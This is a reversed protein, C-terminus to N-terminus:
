KRKLLVGNAAKGRGVCPDALLGLTVSSCDASYTLSLRGEDEKHCVYGSTATTATGHFALAPGDMHWAIKTEARVSKTSGTGDAALSIEIPTGSFAYSSPPYVGSWDGVISCAGAMAPAPASPHSAAIAATAPAAAAAPAATAPAASSVTGSAPAGKCAALAALLCLALSTFVRRRVLGAYCLPRRRILVEFTPTWEGQV